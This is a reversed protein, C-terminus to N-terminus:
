SRSWNLDSFYLKGGLSQSVRSIAIDEPNARIADQVLIDLREILPLDATPGSFRCATM